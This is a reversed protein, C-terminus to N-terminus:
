SKLEVVRADQWLYDLGYFDRAEEDFVHVLVDGMDLLVWTQDNVVASLNRLGKKYRVIVNFPELGEVIGAAIGKVQRDSHGTCLVFYDCFNACSRMDLIKIDEAKKDSALGAVIRALEEGALQKKPNVAKKIM